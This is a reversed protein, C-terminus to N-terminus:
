YVCVATGNCCVLNITFINSLFNCTHRTCSCMCVYTCANMYNNKKQIGDQLGGFHPPINCHTLITVNVNYMCVYMNICVYMCVYM